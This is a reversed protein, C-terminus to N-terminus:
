QWVCRPPNCCFHLYEKVGPRKAYFGWKKRIQKNFLEEANECKVQGSEVAGVLFQRTRIVPLDPKLARALEVGAQDDILLTWNRSIAVAVTEAEGPDLGTIRKSGTCKKWIDGKMFAIAMKEEYRSLEVSKWLAGHGAIFSQLPLEADLYKSNLHKKAMYLPRLIESLPPEELFNVGRPESPDLVVPTVYVPSNLVQQLLVANGTFVFNSLFSTDALFGKRKAIPQSM